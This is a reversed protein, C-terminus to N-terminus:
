SGTMWALQMGRMHALMGVTIDDWGECKDCIKIFEKVFEVITGKGLFRQLDKRSFGFGGGGCMGSCKETNCGPLGIIRSTGDSFDTCLKLQLHDLFVYVDDDGM